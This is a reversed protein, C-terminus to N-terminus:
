NSNGTTKSAAVTAKGVQGSSPKKLFGKTGLCIIAHPSESCNIPKRIELTDSSKHGADDAFQTYLFSIRGFRPLEAYRCPQGAHAVIIRAYPSEEAKLEIVIDSAEGMKSKIVVDTYGGAAESHETAEFTQSFESDNSLFRILHAQFRDEARSKGMSEIEESVGPSNAHKVLFSLVLLAALFDGYFNRPVGVSAFQEALRISVNRRESESWQQFATEWQSPVSRITQKSGNFDMLDTAAGQESATLKPGLKELAALFESRTLKAHRISEEGVLLDFHSALYVAAAAAVHSRHEASCFVWAVQKVDQYANALQEPDFYRNVRVLRTRDVKDLIWIDPNEKIPNSVPLDIHVQDGVPIDVVRCIWEEMEKIGNARLAADARDWPAAAESPLKSRGKKYGALFRPSLALARQPLRRYLIQDAFKKFRRADDGAVPDNSLASLIVDDGGQEFLFKLVRAPLWGESHIGHMLRQRLLREVTREAARIKHHCYIREFLYSRTLVFMELASCGAPKIGLLEYRQPRPPEFDLEKEFETTKDLEAASVQSLLRTMDTSIPMGAFYADRAVYDLKDADLDGSVIAKIFDHSCTVGTKGEIKLFKTPRGLILGCVMLLADAPASLGWDRFLGEMQPSLALLVSLLEAAPPPKKTSLVNARKANDSQRIDDVFYSDFVDRIKNLEDRYLTQLVREGVHSFATHGCDHLLAAMSVIERIRKNDAPEICSTATLRDFLQKAAHLAGVSHELRSHTASPFVLYAM